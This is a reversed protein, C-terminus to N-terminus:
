DLYEFGPNKKAIQSRIWRNCPKKGHAKTAEELSNFVGLPTKCRRSRSKQQKSRYNPDQWLDSSAKAMRKKAADYGASQIKQYEPDQWRLKMTESRKRGASIKDSREMATRLKIDKDDSAHMDIWQDVADPDYKKNM